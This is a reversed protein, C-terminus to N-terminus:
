ALEAALERLAASQAHVDEWAARDFPDAVVAATHREAVAASRALWQASRRTLEDLPRPTGNM